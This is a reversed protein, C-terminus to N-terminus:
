ARGYHALDWDALKPSLPKENDLEDYAAADELEEYGVPDFFESELDMLQIIYALADMIDFLKSRPFSLLQTELKVTVARNHYIYGQRYYPALQAIRNEKKDRAKLQMFRALVGRRRMENEFPQVIFENLGTVEVALTHAHLRAVMAFCEEYLEDPYLKASVVDRVFLAPLSKELSIGVIASDASHLKVTKAPDVVVFSQLNL